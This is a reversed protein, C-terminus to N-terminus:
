SVDLREDEPAAWLFVFVSLMTGVGLTCFLAPYGFHKGILGLVPAGILTGADLMMLALASGTGRVESPFPRITLSTMTHFVLGHGFGCLLAPVVLWYAREPTALCFSFMGLSMCLMGAVLIRVAGIREPLRRLTVRLSIGAGAYLFFFVGLESLSGLDLPAVDIFSAVFVFPVTMCAGFALDVLLIAGPWHRRITRFFESLRLSHVETRPASPRVLLLLIAPIVNALASVWFVNIFQQRDRLEAVLFIDGLYPGVMMGLFGGVGLIGIAETRRHDPAIQSVYTLSSAFVVAAGFFSAARIFYIVPNLDVLLCNALAALSFIAYGVLWMQKAGFRNILQALWPRLLLGALSGVGTIWGIQSLDGGLYEIWRSYHALLSNAIVFLTQSIFVLFFSFDYLREAPKGPLIPRESHATKLVDIHAKPEHVELEGPWDFEPGDAVTTTPTTDSSASTTQRLLAPSNASSHPFTTPPRPALCSIM